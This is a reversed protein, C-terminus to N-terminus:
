FLDTIQRSIITQSIEIPNIQVINNDHGELIIDIMRLIFSIRNSSLRAQLEQQLEENRNILDFNERRFVANANDVISNIRTLEELNNLSDLNQAKLTYVLLGVGIVSTCLFFATTLPYENILETIKSSFFFARSTEQNIHEQLFNLTEEYSSNKELYFKHVDLEGAKCSELVEPSCHSVFKEFIM